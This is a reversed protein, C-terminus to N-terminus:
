RSRRKKTATDDLVWEGDTEVVVVGYDEAARASSVYGENVDSVVLAPDRKM